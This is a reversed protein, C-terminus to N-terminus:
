RHSEPVNGAVTKVEEARDAPCVLVADDTAVIIMDSCGIATIIRDSGESVAFVDTCGDLLAAGHVKNGDSDAQITEALSPWSGIDRWQVPMHVLAIEFGESGAAPEMLGYDVSTRPLSPYVEQLVSARDPGDWSEAIRMLGAHNDPQFREIAELVRGASFVFMGSNWSYSGDDLYKRATEADPKEKFGSSAFAGDFGPIASGEGVYGYGTAPHTPTIGFTVFRDRDDEVLAFGTEIARAFPDHPEILHDATLVAFVAEPDRLALVAATLGVANLTDRGCPEGLVEIDGIAQQVADRFSEGTCVLRNAPEVIGDLRRVAIELLSRGEVLPLLQKPRQIRSLPWLRTGSGGAMIMAHRM